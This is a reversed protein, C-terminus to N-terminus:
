DLDDWYETYICGADQLDKEIIEHVGKFDYRTEYEKSFADPTLKYFKDVYIFYISVNKILYLYESNKNKNKMVELDKVWKPYLNAIKEPLLKISEPSEIKTAGVREGWNYWFRNGNKDVGGALWVWGSPTEKPEEYLIEM